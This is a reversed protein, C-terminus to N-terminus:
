DSADPPQQSAPEALKLLEKLESIRFAASLREREDKNPNECIARLATLRAQVHAAVKGWARSDREPKDLRLQTKM